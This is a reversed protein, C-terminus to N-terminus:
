EDGVERTTSGANGEGDFAHLLGEQISRSLISKILARDTKRRDLMVRAYLEAVVVGLAETNQPLEGGCHAKIEDFIKRLLEPDSYAERAAARPPRPSVGIRAADHPTHSQDMWGDDLGLTREIRRAVDNGM